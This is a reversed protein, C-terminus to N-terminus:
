RQSKLIFRDQVPDYYYVVFLDFVMESDYEFVFLIIRSDTDQNISRLIMKREPLPRGRRLPDPNAKRSIEMDRLCRAILEKQHPVSALKPSNWDGIIRKPPYLAVLDEFSLYPIPLQSAATQVQSWAPLSLCLLGFALLHRMARLNLAEWFIALSRFRAEVESFTQGGGEGAADHPSAM